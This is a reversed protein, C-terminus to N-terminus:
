CYHKVRFISAVRGRSAEPVASFGVLVSGNTRLLLVTSLVQFWAVTLGSSLVSCKRKVTTRSVRNWSYLRLTPTYIATSNHLMNIASNRNWFHFNKSMVVNQQDQFCWCVTAQTVICIRWYPKCKVAMYSFRTCEHIFLSFINISKEPFKLTHCMLPANYLKWLTFQFDNASWHFLEYCFKCLAFQFDDTKYLLLMCHLPKSCIAHRLRKVPIFYLLIQVNM